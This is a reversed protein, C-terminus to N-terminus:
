CAMDQRFCIESNRKSPYIISVESGLLIMPIPIPTPIPISKLFPWGTEIRIGIAIGVGVMDMDPDERCPIRNIPKRAWIHVKLPRM